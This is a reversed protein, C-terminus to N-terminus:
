LGAAAMIEDLAPGIPGTGVVNLYDTPPEWPDSVGTFNPITGARVLAYLGKPDRRECVELTTAVHVGVYCLGDAEAAARNVERDAAYPAINACIAINGGTAALRAAYGIRRVNASRDAKSFGLGRSLNTRIVDGDLVVVPRGDPLARCREALANAITTKGAGSLGVLYIIVGRPRSYFPRLVKEVGPPTFWPPLPLGAGLRRRAETGSIAARRDEPIDDLPAYREARKDYGIARFTLIELGPIPHARAYEIADSPAYFASGPMCTSRRTSPGAHDRGVIFHTAGLNHRIQAHFLASRPGAMRMALPLPCLIISSAALGTPLDTDASETTDASSVSGASCTGGRAARFGDKDTGLAARYAAMRVGAPVDGPQTPGVAPTILVLPADRAADYVARESVDAIARQVADELLALHARHLPNRTQFAIVPANSAARHVAIHTLVRNIGREPFDHHAPARPQILPGSVCVVAPDSLYDFLTSPSEQQAPSVGYTDWMQSVGPHAPDHAGYVSQTEAYPNPFYVETVELTALVTTDAAAAVLRIQAGIPPQKNKPFTLVIPLLNAVSGGSASGDTTPSAGDAAPEEGAGVCAAYQARSMYSGLPALLGETLLEYDALERDNLCRTLTPGRESKIERIDPVTAGLAPDPASVTPAPDPAGAGTVTGSTVTMRGAASGVGSESGADSGHARDPSSIDDVASFM